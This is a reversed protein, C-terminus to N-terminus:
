MVSDTRGKAYVLSLALGEVALVIAWFALEVGVLFPPEGFMNFPTHFEFYLAMLAWLIAAFGLGRGIVGRPLTPEVGLFVLGHVAGILAVISMYLPGNTFMVPLPEMEFLVAIVKASQQENAFLVGRGVQFFLVNSVINAIIFAVAGGIIARAFKSVPFIGRVSSTLPPILWIGPIRAGAM